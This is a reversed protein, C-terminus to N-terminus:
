KIGLEQKKQSILQEFKGLFSQQEAQIKEIEKQLSDIRSLTKEMEKKESDTLDEEDKDGFKNNFSNTLDELTKNKTQVAKIKENYEPNQSFYLGQAYEM